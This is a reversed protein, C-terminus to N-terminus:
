RRTANSTPRCTTANDMVVFDIQKGDIGGNENVMNWYSTQADIIQVVLPAFIGSLDAIAGIRITDDTVGYDYATPVVVVEVDDIAELFTTNVFADYSDLAEPIEGQEVFFDMQQKMVDQVTGGLWADSL